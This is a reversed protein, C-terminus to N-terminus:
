QELAMAAPLHQAIFRLLARVSPLQGGRHPILASITAGGANWEPLVRALLGAALEARVLGAPVSAIGAGELAAIKLSLVDDLVLRANVRVRQRDGSGHTRDNHTLVWESEAAGAHMCLAAHQALDPPHLPAGARAVYAPSAILWRPSFGIRRQVLSSSALRHEHARVALDVGEEVLDVNRNTTTQLVRVRPYQTVFRGLVIALGAHATAPSASVHLTGSPESLHSAVLNEAAAAETMMACGRQYFEQGLATVTFKRSTRQILRANLAGELHAIRTSLTSKPMKLARAAPAFGGRKVVEVFLAVDNLNLM